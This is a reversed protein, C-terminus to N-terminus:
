YVELFVRRTPKIARHIMRRDWSAKDALADAEIEMYRALAAPDSELMTALTRLVGLEMGAIGCVYVLSDGARISDGVTDEGRALAGDVYEKPHDGVVERSLATVYRFREHERDLMRFHEHYLLDTEYPAGMILTVNRDVKGLLDAIMGRFPAIGTGTAIFIYDHEEPRAPLLFRKGNPGAVLIPDGVELDCIHNSAVGSYMKHGDGLEEFVRKVTTALVNGAGDEGGSPSAISYLRVKHPKGNEDTGPAIVGFSQGACFSGALPTGSVDIEVHRVIGASKSGGHTCLESRVVKGTVPENPRVVHMQVEPLDVSFSEGATPETPTM